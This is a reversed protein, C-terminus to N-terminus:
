RCNQDLTTKAALKAGDLGGGYEAGLHSLLPLRPIGPYARKAAAEAPVYVLISTLLIFIAFIVVAAVFNVCVPVLFHAVSNAAGIYLLSNLYREFFMSM